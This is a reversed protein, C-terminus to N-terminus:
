DVLVDLLEVMGDRALLRVPRPKVDAYAEAHL